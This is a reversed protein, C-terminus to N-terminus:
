THPFFRFMATHAHSSTLTFDGKATNCSTRLGERFGNAEQRMNHCGSRQDNTIHPYLTGHWVGFMSMGLGPPIFAAGMLFKVHRTKGNARLTVFAHQGMPRAQRAAVVLPHRDDGNVLALGWGM